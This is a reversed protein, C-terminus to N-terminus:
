RSCWIGYENVDLLRRMCNSNKWQDELFTEECDWGSGNGWLDQEFSNFAAQVSPRASDLKCQLKEMLMEVTYGNRTLWELKYRSYAKQFLDNMMQQRYKRLNEKAQTILELVSKNVRYANYNWNVLYAPYIGQKEKLMWVRCIVAGAADEDELYGDIDAYALALREDPMSQDADAIHTCAFNVYEKM